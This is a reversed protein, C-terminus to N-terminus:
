LRRLSACWMREALSWGSVAACCPNADVDSSVSIGLPGHHWFGQEDRKRAKDKEGRWCGRVGCRREIPQPCCAPFIAAVLIPRVALCEDVEVVDDLVLGRRQDISIFIM